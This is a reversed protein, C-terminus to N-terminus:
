LQDTHRKRAFGAGLLGLHSAARFSAVACQSLTFFGSLKKDKKLPSEKVTEGADAILELEAMARSVNVIPPM